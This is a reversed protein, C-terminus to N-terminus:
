SVQEPKHGTCCCLDGGPCKPHACRADHEYQDALERLWQEADSEAEQYGSVHEGAYYGTATSGPLSIRDAADRLVEAPTLPTAQVKKRGAWEKPHELDADCRACVDAHRDLGCPNVRGERPARCAGCTDTEAALLVITLDAFRDCLASATAHDSRRNETALAQFVIMAEEANLTISATAATMSM